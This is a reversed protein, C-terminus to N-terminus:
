FLHLTCQPEHSPLFLCENFDRSIVLSHHYQYRAQHHFGSDCSLGLFIISPNKLTWVMNKNVQIKNVMHKKQYHNASCTGMMWAWPGCMELRCAAVLGLESVLTRGWLMWCIDWRIPQSPHPAVPCYAQSSPIGHPLITALGQAFSLYWVDGFLTIYLIIYIYNIIHIHYLLIYPIYILCINCWLCSNVRFALFSLGGSQSRQWVWLGPTQVQVFIISISPFRPHDFITLNTFHSKPSNSIGEPLKVYSHFIVM